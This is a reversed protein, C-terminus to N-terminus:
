KFKTDTIFNEPNVHDSTREFEDILAGNAFYSITFKISPPINTDAGDKILRVRSYTRFKKGIIEEGIGISLAVPPAEENYLDNPNGQITIIHDSDYLWGDEFIEIKITVTIEDLLNEQPIKFVVFPGDVGLYIPNNNAM